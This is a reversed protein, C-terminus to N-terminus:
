ILIGKEQVLLSIQEFSDSKYFSGSRSLSIHKIIKDVVSWKVTNGGYM